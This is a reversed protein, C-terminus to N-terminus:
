YAASVVANTARTALFGRIRSLVRRSADSVLSKVVRSSASVARRRSFLCPVLLCLGSEGPARRGEPRDESRLERPRRFSASRRMRLDVSWALQSSITPTSNVSRSARPKGRSAGSRSTQGEERLDPSMSTPLSRAPPGSERARTIRSRAFSRLRGTGVAQSEAVSAAPEITGPLIPPGQYRDSGISGAGGSKTGPQNELREM